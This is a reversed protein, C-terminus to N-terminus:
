RGVMTRDSALDDLEGSARLVNFAETEWRWLAAESFQNGARLEGCLWALRRIHIVEKSTMTVGETLPLDRGFSDSGVSTQRFLRKEAFIQPLIGGQRVCQPPLSHRRYARTKAVDETHRIIPHTSVGVAQEACGSPTADRPVGLHGIEQLSRSRVSRARVNVHFRHILHEGGAD